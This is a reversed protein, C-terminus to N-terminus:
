ESWKKKLELCVQILNDCLKDFDQVLNVQQLLEFHYNEISGYESEKIDEKLSEYSENTRIYYDLVNENDNENYLVLYGGSRGNFGVAYGNHEREWNEIVENITDYNDLELYKLIDYDLEKINYIKVNNAISEQRNWSNMTYYTFHGKLFEFMEKDSKKNVKKYYM